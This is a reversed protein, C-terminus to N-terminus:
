LLTQQRFEFLEFQLLFWLVLYNTSNQPGVFFMNKLRKKLNKSDDEGIKRENRGRLISFHDVGIFDCCTNLLLKTFYVYLEKFNAVSKM